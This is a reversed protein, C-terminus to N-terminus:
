SITVKDDNFAYEPISTLSPTIAIHANPKVVENHNKAVWKFPLDVEPPSIIRQRLEQNRPIYIASIFCQPLLVWGFFILAFM